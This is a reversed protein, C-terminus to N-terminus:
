LRPVCHVFEPRLATFISSMSLTTSPLFPLRSICHVAIDITTGLVGGVCLPCVKTQPSHLCITVGLTTNSYFNARLTHCVTVDASRVAIFPQCETSLSWNSPQKSLCIGTRPDNWSGLLIACQAYQIPRLELTPEHDCISHVLPEPYSCLQYM